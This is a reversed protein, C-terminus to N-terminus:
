YGLWPPTEGRAARAERAAELLAMRRKGVYDRTDIGNVGADVELAIAAISANELAIALAVDGVQVGNKSLEERVTNSRELLTLADELLKRARERDQRVRRVYSAITAAHLESDVRQLAEHHQRQVRRVGADRANRRGRLEVLLSEASLNATGADIEAQLQDIEGSLKALEPDNSLADLEDQLQARETTLAELTAVM